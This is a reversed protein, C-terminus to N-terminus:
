WDDSISQFSNSNRIPELFPHFNAYNGWSVRNNNITQSTAKFPPFAQSLLIREGWIEKENAHLRRWFASDLYLFLIRIEDWIHQASSIEDINQWHNSAKQRCMAFHGARGCKVRHPNEWGIFLSLTSIPKVQGSYTYICKKYM